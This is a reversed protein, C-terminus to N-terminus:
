DMMIRGSVSEGGLHATLAGYKIVAKGGTDHRDRM